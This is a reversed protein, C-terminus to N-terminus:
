LLKCMSRDDNELSAGLCDFLSLTDRKRYNEAVSKSHSCKPSRNWSGSPLTTAVHCKSNFFGLNSDQGNEFKRDISINIMVENIDIFLSMTKSM